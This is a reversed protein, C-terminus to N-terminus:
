RAVERAPVAHGVVAACVAGADEIHPFHGVAPDSLLRARPMARMLRGVHAAPVLPDRGGAVVLAPVPCLAADVLAGHRLASSAWRAFPRLDARALRAAAEALLADEPSGPRLRSPDGAASLISARRRAPDRRALAIAARGAVPGLAPIALADAASRPPLPRRPVVVPALLAVSRVAEPARWALRLAVQAGLSHGVVAAPGVRALFPALLGAFRETSAPGRAAPAGGFGPLDLALARGGAGAIADPLAGWSERFGALGHILVVPPGDGRATYPVRPM